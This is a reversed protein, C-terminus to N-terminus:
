GRAAAEQGRPSLTAGDGRWGAQGNGGGGGERYV